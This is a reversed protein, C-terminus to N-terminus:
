ADPGPSSPGDVLPFVVEFRERVVPMDPGTFRDSGPLERDFAARHAERWDRWPALLHV